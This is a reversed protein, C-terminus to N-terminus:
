EGSALNTGVIAPCLAALPSPLTCSLQRAGAEKGRYAVAGLSRLSGGSGVGTGKVGPPDEFTATSHSLHSVTEGAPITKCDEYAAYFQVVEEQPFFACIMSAICGACGPEITLM